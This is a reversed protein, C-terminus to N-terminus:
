AQLQDLNKRIKESIAFAIRLAEYGADLPVKPATNDVICNYFSELEEKIANGDRIEPSNVSIFKEGQETKLPMVYETGPHSDHLSIIESKKELFDLGLYADERFLRMKRMNKMSIRSATLNAVCGNEFEIRANAIDPFKSVIPVGNARIEKVPSHILYLLIDIDHIMLDMVVSVDTGRPNFQALRHVEVFRPQIENNDLSDLVPNFREVHGIQVKAGTELSLRMLEEAEELTSTVPKEIFVHKGEQIAEKAIKYHSDTPTVVDIADCDAILESLDSYAKWGTAKSVTNSVEPNSDYFGVPEWGNVMGICKLHIKGLHGVGVLGIKLKDTKM